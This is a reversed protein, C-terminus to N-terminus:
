SQLVFCALFLQICATNQLISFCSWAAKESDLCYLLCYGNSHISDDVSGPVAVGAAFAATQKPISLRGHRQTNFFRGFRRNCTSYCYLYAIKEMRNEFFDGRKCTIYTM